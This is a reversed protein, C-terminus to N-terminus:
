RVQGFDRQRGGNSQVACPGGLGPRKEFKELSIIRLNVEALQCRLKLLLTHIELEAPYRSGSEQRGLAKRVPPLGSSPLHRM